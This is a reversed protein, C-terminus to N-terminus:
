AFSVPTAGPADDVPRFGSCVLSFDAIRGDAVTAFGHQEILTTEGAEHVRFRYRLYTRDAVSDVDSGLLEISDAEGFWRRLWGVADSATAAERLGRPVIARFRVEAEFLRELAGFDRTALAEVFSAAVSAATPPDGAHSPIECYTDM